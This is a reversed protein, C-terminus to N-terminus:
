ATIIEGGGFVASGKIILVKNSNNNIFSGYPKRKDQFGGMISDMRLKINWGSPVIIKVGGFVCNIELINEGEALTSGSLDVESGGFVNNIEGGKFEENEFVVRSGGFVNTEVIKGKEYSRKYKDTEEYNFPSNKTKKKRFAVWIGIAILLIPLGVQRFSLEFMFFKPLLFFSGISFLVVGLFLSDRSSLNIIGLAVLIMPWSFVVDKYEIPLYGFNFGLLLAGALALMLGLVIKKMIKFNSKCYVKSEM